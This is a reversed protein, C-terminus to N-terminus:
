SVHFRQFLAQLDFTVIDHLSIISDFLSFASQPFLRAVLGPRDIQGFNGPVVRGTVTPEHDIIVYVVARLEQFTVRTALVNEQFVGSSVSSQRKNASPMRGDGCCDQLPVFNTLKRRLLPDEASGVAQLDRSELKGITSLRWQSARYINFKIM